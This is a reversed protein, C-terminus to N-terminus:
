ALSLRNRTGFRDSCLASYHTITALSSELSSFIRRQLVDCGPAEGGEFCRFACGYLSEAFREPSKLLDDYSLGSRSCSLRVRPYTNPAFITWLSHKLSPPVSMNGFLNRRQNNSAKDRLVM